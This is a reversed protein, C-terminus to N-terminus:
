GRFEGPDIGWDQLRRYLTKRGVGLAQAAQRVNGRSTRLADALAAATLAAAASPPPPIPGDSRRRELFRARVAEPLEDLTVRSPRTADLRRALSRVGRVNDPWDHLLLAEVADAALEVPSALLHALLLPIDERRERLPPMVLPWEELRALLDPRMAADEGDVPRNTAALIRVDVARPRSGGLPTVVGDELVRLLKAQVAMPLDGVEDLLLTGRDARQFLGERAAAAGTFAGKLHGFLASEATSEAIAACNVPVFAGSRGSREHVLRAAVEKGTGTEGTILVALGSRAIREIAARASAIAASSGVLPASSPRDGSLGVVACTDGFRVVSGERLESSEVRRGDVFLGNRSGLDEVSVTNFSRVRVHERSLRADDMRLEADEGRGLIVSRARPLAAGIFSPDPSAVVRLAPAVVAAGVPLASAPQTSDM